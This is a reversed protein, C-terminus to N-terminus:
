QEPKRRTRPGCVIHPTSCTSAIGFCCAISAGDTVDILIPVLRGEQTLAEGDAKERVGAFVQFGLGDLHLACAKGIGTSAGTVVIAGAHARHRNGIERM